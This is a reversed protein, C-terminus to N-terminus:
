KVKTELSEFVRSTYAEIYEDDEKKLKAIKEQSIKMKKAATDFLNKVTNFIAAVVNMSVGQGEQTKPITLSYNYPSLIVFQFSAETEFLFIQYAKLQEGVSDVLEKSWDIKVALENTTKNKVPVLEFNSFLSSNKTYYDFFDVFAKNLQKNSKKLVEFQMLQEPTLTVTINNDLSVAKYQNKEKDFSVVKAFKDTVEKNDVKAEKLSIIKKLFHNM